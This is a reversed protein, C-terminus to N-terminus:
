CWRPVHNAHRPVLWPDLACTFVNCSVGGAVPVGQHTPSNNRLRVSLTRDAVKAYLRVTRLTGQSNQQAASSLSPPHLPAFPALNPQNPLPLLGAMALAATAAWPDFNMGFPPVQPQGLGDGASPTQSPALQATAAPVQGSSEGGSMDSHLSHISFPATNPSLRRCSPCYGESM